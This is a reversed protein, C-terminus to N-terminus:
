RNVESRPIVGMEPTPDQDSTAAIPDLRDTLGTPVSGENSPNAVLANERGRILSCNLNHTTLSSASTDEYELQLDVRALGIDILDVDFLRWDSLGLQVRNYQGDDHGYRYARTQGADDLVLRLRGNEVVHHGEFDHTTLFVQQWQTASRTGAITATGVSASGVSDGSGTETHYKQVGRDDFIRADTRWEHRYPLSFILTPQSFSPETADYIDIEDRETKVTRQVTAAEIAQSDTASDFWRVKQARHNLGIEATSGSGFPNDVPEPNAFMGRWHSRRTGVRELTGTFKQIRDDRADRPEIGRAQSAEYYGADSASATGIAFYPLPGLDASFLQELETATLQAFRGVLEGSLDQETATSGVGQVAAFDSSVAGASAVRRGPRAPRTQLADEPIEVAYLRRDPM